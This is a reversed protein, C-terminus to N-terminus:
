CDLSISPILHNKINKINCTNSKEQTQLYSILGSALADVAHPAFTTLFHSQHLTVAHTPVLNTVHSTQKEDNWIINSSNLFM